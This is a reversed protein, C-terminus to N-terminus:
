KITSFLNGVVIGVAFTTGGLLMLRFGAGLPKVGTYKTTGVGLLFLGILTLSVSAIIASSVPLFFYATLPVLGGIIYSFYMFIANKLPNIQYYPFIGLERYQQEKLMLRSNLSAAKTMKRAMAPSWGDRRFLGYMEKQEAQPFEKIAQKEDAISKQDVEKSSSNSIYSGVAMSISEVAIIVIGSLLVTYRDGSGIAIGSIAGLTSVMGDEIGFVVERLISSIERNNNTEAM